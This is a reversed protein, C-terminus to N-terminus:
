LGTSTSIMVAQVLHTRVDILSANIYAEEGPEPRLCPAYEADSCLMMCNIHPCLIIIVTECPLRDSYRNKSAHGSGFIMDGEVPKRSVQDLVQTVCTHQNLM